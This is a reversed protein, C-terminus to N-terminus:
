NKFGLKYSIMKYISYNRAKRGNTILSDFNGLCVNTDFLVDIYKISSLQKYDEHTLKHNKIEELSVNLNINKIIDLNEFLFTYFKINKTINSEAHEQKTMEQYTELFFKNYLTIKTNGRSLPSFYIARPLNNKDRSKNNFIYFLDLNIYEEMTLPNSALDEDIILEIGNGKRSTKINGEIDEETEFYCNFKKIINSSCKIDGSSYFRITNDPLIEKISDRIIM